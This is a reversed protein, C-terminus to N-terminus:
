LDGTPQPPLPMWHSVQYNRPHPEDEGYWNGAKLGDTGGDHLQYYFLEQGYHKHWTLFVGYETPKKKSFDRWQMAAIADRAQNYQERTLVVGVGDETDIDMCHPHKLFEPWKDM